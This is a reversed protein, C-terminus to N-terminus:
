RLHSARCEPRWTPEEGVRTVNSWSLYRESVHLRLARAELHGAIRVGAEDGDNVSDVLPEESM